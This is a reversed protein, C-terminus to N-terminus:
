LFKSNLNQYSNILLFEKRKNIYKQAYTEHRLSVVRSKNYRRFIKKIKQTIFISYTKSKNKM